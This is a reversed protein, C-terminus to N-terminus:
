YRIGRCDEAEGRSVVLGGFDWVRLAGALLSAGRGGRGEGGWFPCLVWALFFSCVGHVPSLGRLVPLLWMFVVLKSFCCSPFCVSLMYLPFM